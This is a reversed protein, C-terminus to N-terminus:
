DKSKSKLPRNKIQSILLRNEEKKLDVFDNVVVADSTNSSCVIYITSFCRSFVLRRFRTSFSRMMQRFNGHIQVVGREAKSFFM